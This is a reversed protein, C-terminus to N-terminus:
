NEINRGTQKAYKRTVFSPVLFILFPLPGFILLLLRILRFGPYPNVGGKEM